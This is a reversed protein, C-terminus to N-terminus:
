RATPSSRGWSNSQARFRACFHPRELGIRLKDAGLNITTVDAVEEAEPEESFGFTFRFAVSPHVTDKMCREGESSANACSRGWESIWCADQRISPFVAHSHPAEPAIIESAQRSTAFCLGNRSDSNPGHFAAVSSSSLFALSFICGFRMGFISTCLPWTESVYFSPAFQLEMELRQNQRVTDRDFFVRRSTLCPMGAAEASGRM